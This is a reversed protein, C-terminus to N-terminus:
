SLSMHQGLGFSFIGTGPSELPGLRFLCRIQVTSKQNGPEARLARGRFRAALTGQVPALRDEILSSVAVRFGCFFPLFCM